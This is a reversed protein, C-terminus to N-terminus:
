TAALRRPSTWPAETPPFSPTNAAPVPWTVCAVGRGEELSVSLTAAAGFLAELTDRVPRLGADLAERAAADFRIAVTVASLDPARQAAFELPPGVAGDACAAQVLPLLVRPPAYAEALAPELLPMRPPRERLIRLWAGALDLERALTTSSERLQPLAARLYDILADLRREAARADREYLSQVDGLTDLLFAPEVRAELVRLRSEVLRRQVQQRQREALQLATTSRTAAVLAARYWALLAGVAWGLWTVHWAIGAPDGLGAAQAQMTLAPSAGVFQAYLPATVAIAIADLVLRKTGSMRLGEVLALVGDLALALLLWNAFQEAALAAITSAPVGDLAPAIRLLGTALLTAAIAFTLPLRARVRRLFDSM